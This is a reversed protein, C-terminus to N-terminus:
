VNVLVGVCVAETEAVIVALIVCVPVPVRVCVEVPEWVPDSVIVDLGVIVEM